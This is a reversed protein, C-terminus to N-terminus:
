GAAGCDALQAVILWSRWLGNSLESVEM